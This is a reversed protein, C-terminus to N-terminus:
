LKIAQGRGKIQEKRLAYVCLLCYSTIVLHTTLLLAEAHWHVLVCHAAAAATPLISLSALLLWPTLLSPRGVSAGHILLSSVLLNLLSLLVLLVMLVLLLTVGAEVAELGDVEPFQEELGLRLQEAFEM